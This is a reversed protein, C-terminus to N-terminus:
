TPVDELGSLERWAALREHLGPMPADLVIATRDGLALAAARSSTIMVVGAGRQELARLLRRREAPELLELGDFCLRRRELACVLSAEGMLERDGLDRVDALLLPQEVAGTM